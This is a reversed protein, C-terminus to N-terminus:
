GRDSHRIRERIDIALSRARRALGRGVKKAAAVTADALAAFEDGEEDQTTDLYDDYGKDKEAFRAAVEGVSKPARVAPAIKPEPRGDVAYGVVGLDPGDPSVDIGLWSAEAASALEKPVFPLSIGGLQEVTEGAWFPAEFPEPLGIDEAVADRTAAFARKATEGAFHAFGAFDSDEGRAIIYVDSAPLARLLHQAAGTITSVDEILTQVVAVGPYGAIYFEARSPTSSRNLPFEGIPTIPWAPNLQALLKRGFGRDAKPEGSLVVAPDTATVFWFTVVAACGM